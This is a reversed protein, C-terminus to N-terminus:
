VATATRWIRASQPLRIPLRGCIWWIGSVGAISVYGDIAYHWGLYVSTLLIIAAYLWGLAGVYRNIHSLMLANLTVVAVHMSPMATYHTPHVWSEQDFLDYRAVIDVAGPLASRPPAMPVAWYVPLVLVMMAVMARRVRRYVEAHRVFVWVLVGAVVLYYGRYVYVAPRALVPHGALWRNASLEVDLHVAHEASQLASAHANAAALDTGLLAAIRAFLVFWLLLLVVEAVVARRGGFTV